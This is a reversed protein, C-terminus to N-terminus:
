AAVRRVLHRQELDSLVDQLDNMIREVSEGYVEALQTAVERVTVPQELALWVAWGSHELTVIGPEDVRMLLVSAGASRWLVDERRVWRHEIRHRPDTSAPGSM